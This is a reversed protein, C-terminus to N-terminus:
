IMVFKDKQTELWANLETTCDYSDPSKLDDAQLPGYGGVVIRNWTMEIVYIEGTGTHQFFRKTTLTVDTMKQDREPGCDFSCKIYVAFFQVRSTNLRAILGRNTIEREIKRREM